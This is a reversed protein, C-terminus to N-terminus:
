SMRASMAPEAARLRSEVDRVGPVRRVAAVLDDIQEQRDVEGRLVVVGDEANVNIRGKPIAPDRFIETEVKQALAADNPVAPQAARRHILKQRLGSAQAGISRGTRALRDGSRRITAAARDRSVNRRRRGSDPDLFYALAAGAAAALLLGMM